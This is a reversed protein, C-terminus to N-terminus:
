EVRLLVYNGAGVNIRIQAGDMPISDGTVTNRATARALGLAKPDIKIVAEVPDHTINGVVCLAGRGKALYTSLKVPSDSTLPSGDKWYPFWEATAANFERLANWARSVHVPAIPMMGHILSYTSSREENGPQTNYKLYFSTIGFQRGMMEARFGELTYRRDEPFRGVHEGDFYADAFSLCPLVVTSSTHAVVYTPRGVSRSTMYVQKMVQRTALIPLTPHVNGGADKYGCGHATNTCKQPTGSGDLYIGSVGVEKFAKEVRGAFWDKWGGRQCMLIGKYEPRTPIQWTMPPGFSWDPSAGSTRADLWIGACTLPAMGYGKARSILEPTDPDAICPDGMLFQGGWVNFCNFGAESLRALRSNEPLSKAGKADHTWSAPDIWGFSWRIDGIQRVPKVPSAMLGFVFRFPKGRDLTVNSLLNLRLTKAGTITILKGSPRLGEDSEAFWQLGREEDGVWIHHVFPLQTGSRPVAGSNITDTAWRQEAVPKVPHHHFLRAISPNLPIQLDLKDLKISDRRPSLTLECLLFGDFEMTWRCEANLEPSSSRTNFSVTDPGAHDIRLAPRSWKVARGSSAAKLEIPSRLVNITGSTIRAPMLSNTFDYERNWCSFVQKHVQMATWPEPVTQQGAAPSCKSAMLYLAVAASLSAKIM